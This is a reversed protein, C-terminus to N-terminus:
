KLDGATAARGLRQEAISPAAVSVNVTNTTVPRFNALGDPAHDKVEAWLRDCTLLMAHQAPTMDAANALAYEKLAEYNVGTQATVAAFNTLIRGLQQVKAIIAPPVTNTVTRAETATQPANAERVIAARRYDDEERAYRERLVDFADARAERLPAFACLIGVVPVWRVWNKWGSSNTRM